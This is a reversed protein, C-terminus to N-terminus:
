KREYTTRSVFFTISCIITLVMYKMMEITFIDTPVGGLIIEFVFVIETGLLIYLILSFICNLKNPLIIYKFLLEGLICGLLVIPVGIYVVVVTIQIVNVFINVIINFYNEEGFIEKNYYLQLINMSILLSLITYVFSM